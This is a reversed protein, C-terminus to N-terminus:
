GTRISPTPGCNTRAGGGGPSSVADPAPSPVPNTCDAMGRAPATPRPSPADPGIVAPPGEPGPPGPSASCSSAPPAAPAPTAAPSANAPAPAAVAAAASPDPADGAGAGAGAGAGSTDPAGPACADHPVAASAAACAAAAAAPAALEPAGLLRAREGSGLRPSPFGLHARLHPASIGSPFCVFPLKFSSGTRWFNGPWVPVHCKLVNRHLATHATQPLCLLNQPSQPIVCAPPFSPSIM